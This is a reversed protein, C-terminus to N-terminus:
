RPWNTEFVAQKFAWPAIANLCGENLSNIVLETVILGISEANRSTSFGGTGSGRISIPLNDSIMSRALASCLTTLYPDMEISCKLSRATCTNKCRLLRFSGTTLM